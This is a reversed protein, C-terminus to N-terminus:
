DVKKKVISGILILTSIWANISFLASYIIKGPVEENKTLFLLQEDTMRRTREGPYDLVRGMEAPTILRKIGNDKKFVSLATIPKWRDDWRLVGKSSNIQGHAPLDVLVKGYIRHDM